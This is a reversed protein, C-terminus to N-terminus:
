KAKELVEILRFYKDKSYKRTEMIKVIDGVKAEGKEDHAKLRKSSRISKKYLPHQKLEDIRVIITKDMKDSVVEGIRVKRVNREQGEM